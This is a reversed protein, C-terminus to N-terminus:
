ALHRCTRIRQYSHFAEHHQEQPSKICVAPRSRGSCSANNPVPQTQLMKPPHARPVASKPVLTRAVESSVRRCVDICSCPKFAFDLSLLVIHAGDSDRGSSDSNLSRARETLLAFIVNPLRKRKTTLYKKERVILEHMAVAAYYEGTITTRIALAHVRMVVKCNSDSTVRM